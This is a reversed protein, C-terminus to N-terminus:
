TLRNTRAPMQRKVVKAYPKSPCYIWGTRIMPWRSKRTGCAKPAASRRESGKSANSKRAAPKRKRTHMAKVGGRALRASTRRRLPQRGSSRNCYIHPADRRRGQSQRGFDQESGGGGPEAPGSPASTGQARRHTGCVQMDHVLGFAAPHFQQDQRRGLCDRLQPGARIPRVRHQM